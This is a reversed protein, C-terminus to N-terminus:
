FFTYRQPTIGQPGQAILGQPKTKIRFCNAWMKSPVQEGLKKYLQQQEDKLLVLEATEPPLLTATM